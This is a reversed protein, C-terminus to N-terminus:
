VARGDLIRRVSDYGKAYRENLSINNSDAISESSNLNMFWIVENLKLNRPPSEQKCPSFQFKLTLDSGPLSLYPSRTLLGQGFVEGIRAPTLLVM